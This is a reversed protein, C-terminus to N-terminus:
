PNTFKGIIVNSAEETQSAKKIAPRYLAYSLVAIDIKTGGALIKANVLCRQSSSSKSFSQTDHLATGMVNKGIANFPQGGWRTKARLTTPYM